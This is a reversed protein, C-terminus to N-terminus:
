NIKYDLVPQSKLYNVFDKRVAIEVSRSFLNVYMQGDEDRVYFYLKTKGPNSKALSSIETIMEENVASLPVKITLKEILNDKVEPLLEITNIKVEWEEQKWQRPQCKGRMFLFMGEMFFNKKEVWENGFFAFEAGGSYDEVKAVGYPKGTKTYGERVGTVIGGLTLDRNQLPTLDSLESMHVNCVNELIVAYEDLPHASLYIGVLEREKNLRELDGWAPARVIEPTAIEVEHEGGFLSNAAAAKDMQYKNGYRVLVEVFSEDKANKVFFDERRIEPFSDFSGALALNEINKRNCASLNVRQVFDFIGKFPGNKEREALISQVASEGVGKIAGLGFRIDGHQNVSFKLGSENVDPGLVNIGTAKSEDMLKTIETINSINRSMTAAMYESPYNAKLYATQYAVWSYCTAHSKNFAYSAFKEWDAWIKELIKPDHGNKKGGEIFKPKMHDLKDRLKKGMAKRLADSEGRTFDALLRSLLMVQEQYVTIGYTDKLYKEMIPIDYEIPKRGHKRDIFDPIYDMPGPRYLANMAILDEFTSPQLERLYKQMGASEFQFTGVTRGESYLKYTAPDDIPVEDINLDIGKSKKINEVAEKIISLTKLGLFDMKILGTDEIVSGEYQTVLMKEGTEKDDATSVPVWDTIDDRCIITGCAHVGTNRVNGELMKAYKITDRLVPDSSVEAAQLEPVYAIANTLNLKKDPIKDPVLKCLRDSESLPLKQVRAVDKIALKTAMTGYTIIHAVKEQGYKETVWNLVRGRGDDDFDVDIDPLSIRDPNLFREFLLDYKIPDIQTIGLCYAVASGAASGRGPGVSVDLQNRAASIFDQVILFYGPFGMTKMIYLEFRIREEVEESLVEGYRRHAGEYALKALYDAELKIRYLKDYGGLREIKANAAAEDMVVNGNEDQTFEDFLDKETFKKRYEEETGFDEPIAFTPMIPAHDISYFEVRDCIDVTNSLAEPVDAFIENMEERTKMWEQKTYLMRNPDDLDKGTSLCILRDHAEANEEDVFHVDNTCVLKVDYKKAYEILKKNVVEQMKYVEHNARPVTAKHRQLELFYDDGFLNKYWRIAEEAEEFQGASIRRPVEGGLCASCVILGEHYKELEVRDTRPRMYFGETWAKSVLKILNHYGKLNKALVVLHYGSQDPKGEKNFLRRRAVYMECGIIPKFLKKKAAELQEKCAALEAEPDEADSKGSELAAIKKKLDKIEGNVGGNKKNVYNFFEKIGFMDGHDTVAIGKMGNAMAKDVLRPISAQGDLISYQTHVHLHVFDQM